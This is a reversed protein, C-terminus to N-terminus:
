NKLSNEQYDLYSELIIVASIKDILSKDRRAMKRVGGNILAREAMKSTFREDYLEIELGPFRDKLWAIFPQIYKIAESPQNNMQKPYGIVLKEVEEHHLYDNLFRKIESTSVTSLGTAILKLPDTVAVGVRKKGYDLAIIRGM